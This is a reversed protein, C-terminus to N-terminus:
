RVGAPDLIELLRDLEEYSFYEIEIRGKKGRRAKVRVRTGLAQRLRDELATIHAPAEVVAKPTKAKRGDRVAEETARVSLGDAEIRRALSRQAEVDALSLLARAHGASLTGRSVLERLDGSLELLRLSNAVAPRSKGLRRAADEQTLGLREIFAATAAAEEIPNLDSRQLNEVLALELMQSEDADRIVAPIAELGAEHAARWRREGAILEYGDEVERLVVPQLVGQRRISAALEALAGDDFNRRPQYPNPRISSLGVFRAPVDEVAAEGSILFDLGRGLRRAVM